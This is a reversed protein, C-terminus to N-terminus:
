TLTFRHASADDPQGARGHTDVELPEAQVLAHRDSALPQHALDHPELLVAGDDLNVLACAAEADELRRHIVKVAVPFGGPARAKWVEGFAGGGLRELLQYGAGSPEAM